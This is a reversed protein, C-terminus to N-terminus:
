ALDLTVSQGPVDADGVEVDRQDLRRPFRGGLRQDAILDLAMGIEILRLHQRGAALVAHRHGGVARDGLTLGAAVIHQRPDAGRVFLGRRLDREAEEHLLVNDDNGAGAFSLPEGLVCITDLDPLDNAEGLADGHRMLGRVVTPATMIKNVHYKNAVKYFHDPHPWDLAGEYFITTVGNSLAGVIGWIHMTLWGIDATCWLVDNPHHDLQYKAYIYCNVLFGMGSHIVGKPKGTSGSTYLIAGLDNSISVERFKTDPALRCLAEYNHVPLKVVPATGEDVVVLFELSPIDKLAGELAALKSATTILGKMGECTKGKPSEDLSSFIQELRQVHEKTQELHEEFGERLEDSSAAKAMKPLAKVLQNEASYLDKLEEVYLHKLRNEKM